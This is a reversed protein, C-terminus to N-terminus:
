EEEVKELIKDLTTLQNESLEKNNIYTYFETFQEKISKEKLDSTDITKDKIEKSLSEYTLSLANPYKVRIRKM